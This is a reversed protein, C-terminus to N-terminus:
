QRLPTDIDDEDDDDDDDDHSNYILSLIQMKNKEDNKGPLYANNGHHTHDCQGVEDGPHGVRDHREDSGRSM